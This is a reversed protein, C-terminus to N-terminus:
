LRVVDGSRMSVVELLVVVRKEEERQGQYCLPHAIWPCLIDQLNKPARCHCTTM